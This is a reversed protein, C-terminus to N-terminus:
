RSVKQRASRAPSHSTIPPARYTTPRRVLSWGTSQLEMTIDRQRRDIHRREARPPTFSGRRREGRRRDLVVDRSEDAFVHKLYFYQKPETRSVVFVLDAM